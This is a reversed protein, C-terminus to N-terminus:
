FCTFSRFVVFFSCTYIQGVRLLDTIVARRVLANCFTAKFDTCLWYMAELRNKSCGLEDHTSILNQLFRVTSRWSFILLHPNSCRDVGHFQAVSQPVKRLVRSYLKPRVDVKTDSCAFLREVYSFYPCPWLWSKRFTGSIRQHVDMFVCFICLITLDTIM